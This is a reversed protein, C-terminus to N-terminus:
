RKAWQKLCSKKNFQTLSPRCTCVGARGNTLGWIMTAALRGHTATWTMCRPWLVQAPILLWRAPRSITIVRAWIWLSRTQASTTGIRTIAAGTLLTTGFMTTTPALPQATLGPFAANRIDPPSAHGGRVTFGDLISGASTEQFAITPEGVGLAAGPSLVPNGPFKTWQIGDASEAYDIRAYEYGTSPDDYWGSYWMKFLGDDFIVQPDGLTFTESVVPTARFRNWHIGNTSTVVGIAALNSGAGAYWMWYVGGVNLVSPGWLAWSEWNDGTPTLVVGQKTWAMQHLQM